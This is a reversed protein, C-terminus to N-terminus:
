NKKLKAEQNASKYDVGLMCGPRGKQRQSLLLLWDQEISIIDLTKTRAIDFLDELQGQFREVNKKQTTATRKSLKHTKGNAICIKLRTSKPLNM